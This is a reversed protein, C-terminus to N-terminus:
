YTFDSVCLFQKTGEIIQANEGDVTPVESYVSCWPLKWVGDKQYEFALYARVAEENEATLKLYCGLLDKVLSVYFTNTSDIM